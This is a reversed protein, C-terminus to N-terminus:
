EEIPKKILLEEMQGKFFQAPLILPYVIDGLNSTLTTIFARVYPFMIAPSNVNIFAFRQEQDKPEHNFEFSGVALITLNFFDQCGVRVDMLINFSKKSNEPYFFKPEINVSILNNGDRNLQNKSKFNVNLFDVGIFRLILQETIEM